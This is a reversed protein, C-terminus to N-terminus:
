AKKMRTFFHRPVPVGYERCYDLLENNLYSEDAFLREARIRLAREAELSATLAEVEQQLAIVEQADTLCVAVNLPGSSVTELLRAVALELRVDSGSKRLVTRSATGTM